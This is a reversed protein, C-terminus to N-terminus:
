ADVVDTARAIPLSISFTSGRGPISRCTLRGDHAEVIRHVFALGLGLGGFRRTSSGDLQAFDAFVSEIRDAPIGVGHDRVAIEIAPGRGNQALHAELEIGGGAPSYKVANDVLEDLSREILRRDLVVDPVNRGVWHTVPHLQDGKHKWRMAVNELLARLKVPEVRLTLQGAEMAAFSVLMDIVRELRDSSELIGDLFKAAQERPVERLRLMEAYGKIPTLPTRLEHSINALFERKMREIEQERRMDRLVFVAGALEDGPGRVAGASLAVPVQEGDPRVIVTTETWPTPSPRALRESLDRGQRDVLAMVDQVVHGVVDSSPVGTLLEAARNFITISGDSDVALLADSMGAVVTELRNRLAAEEDISQRLEGALSEISGAMSDFAGGLVGVEDPSEVAARVSLDGRQIGEAAATLRVLGSGIRQGVAFAVVLGVLAAGMAVVFLTRLLSRQTEDVVTTPTATVVAIVSTGDGGLVPEAAVFSGSATASSPTGTALARSGVREVAGLSTRDRDFRALLGDRGVLAVGLETDHVVRGNLYTADLAAGAVAVGAYEPVGTPGPVRVPYAGVAVATRGVVLVGGRGDPQDAAARVVPRGSLVVADGPDIGASAVVTNEANVFVLPGRAYLFDTRRLDELLDDLELVHVPSHAVASLDQRELASAVVQASRVADALRDKAVQDAETRARAGLREVAQHEVTAGIVSFLAISVALVVVLLTGTAAIAVRTAVARRCIAVLVGALGLTGAIQTWSGAHESGSVTLLDAVALLALSSVLGARAGVDGRWAIAGVALLVIGAGRLLMVPEADTAALMSGWLFAGTGLAAFGGFLAVRARGPVPVLRPRLLLVSLWAVAVLFTAFEASFRALQAGSSPAL